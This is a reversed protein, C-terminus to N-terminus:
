DCCFEIKERLTNTGKRQYGKTFVNEQGKIFIENMLDTWTSFNNRGYLYTIKFSKKMTRYHNLLRFYFSILSPLLIILNFCINVTLM